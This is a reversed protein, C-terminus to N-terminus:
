EILHLRLAVASEEFDDRGLAFLPVLNCSLCDSGARLLYRMMGLRHCASHTVERCAIGHSLVSHDSLQIRWLPSYRIM